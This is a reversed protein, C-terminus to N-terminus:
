HDPARCPMSLDVVPEQTPYSYANWRDSDLVHLPNELHLLQMRAAIRANQGCTNHIGPGRYTATKQAKSALLWPSKQHKPSNQVHSSSWSASQSSTSPPPYTTEAVPSLGHESSHPTTGFVTYALNYTAASATHRVKTPFLEPMLVETVIGTTVAGIGLLFQGLVSLGPNGIGALLTNGSPRSNKLGWENM